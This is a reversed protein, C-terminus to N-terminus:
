EIIVTLIKQVLVVRYSTSILSDIRYNNLMHLRNTDVAAKITDFKQMSTKVWEEDDFTSHQAEYYFTYNSKM